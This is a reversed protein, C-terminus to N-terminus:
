KESFRLPHNHLGIAAAGATTLYWRSPTIAGGYASEPRQERIPWFVILGDRKLEDFERGNRTLREPEIGSWGIEALISEHIPTLAVM